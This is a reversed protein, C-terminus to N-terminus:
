RMSYAAVGAPQVNLHRVFWDRAFRPSRVQNLTGPDEFLHTAGQGIELRKEATLREFAARNLEILPTDFGGFLDGDLMVPGVPIKM